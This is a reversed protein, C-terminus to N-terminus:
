CDEPIPDIGYERYIRTFPLDIGDAGGLMILTDNGEFIIENKALGYLTLEDGDIRGTSHYDNILDCFKSIRCDSEVVFYVENGVLWWTGVATQDCTPQQEADEAQDSPSGPSFVMLIVIVVFVGLVILGIMLGKKM